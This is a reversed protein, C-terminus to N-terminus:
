LVNSVPVNTISINSLMSWGVLYCEKDQLCLKATSYYQKTWVLEVFIPKIFLLLKKAYVSIFLM